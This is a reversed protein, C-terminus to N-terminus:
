SDACPSCRPGHLASIAPTSHDCLLIAERDTSKESPGSAAERSRERITESRGAQALYTRTGRTPTAGLASRIREITGCLIAAPALESPRLPAPRAITTAARSIHAAIPAQCLGPPGGKEIFSGVPDRRWRDAGRRAPTARRKKRVIAP